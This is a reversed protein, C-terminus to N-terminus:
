QFLIEEIINLGTILQKRKESDLKNLKETLRVRMSEQIEDILKNGQTTLTLDVQRRDELHPKRAVLRRKVLPDVMRTMTSPQVGISESLGHNTSVLKSLHILIRFQPVTVEPQACERINARVFRMAQPIVELFRRACENSQM